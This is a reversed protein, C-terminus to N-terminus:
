FLYASTYTYTGKFLIALTHHQHNKVKYIKYYVLVKINLNDEEYFM